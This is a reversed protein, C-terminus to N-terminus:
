PHDCDGWLSEYQQGQNGLSIFFKLDDNKKEQHNASKRLLNLCSQNAISQNQFM